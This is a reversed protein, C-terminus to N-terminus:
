ERGIMVDDDTGRKRDPGASVIEMKSGSLQHFFYPTGWRDCLEGQANIAKHDPALFALYLNNKGTLAATIEANNGVPNGDRLFNSQWAMFVGDLTRLDDIVTKGPANLDGAMDLRQIEVKEPAPTPATAGSGPTGSASAVSASSSRVPSRVAAPRLALFVGAALIVMLASGILTQKM